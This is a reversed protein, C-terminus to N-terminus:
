PVAMPYVTSYSATPHLPTATTNHTTWGTVLLSVTVTSDELTCTNQKKNKTGTLWPQYLYRLCALPCKNGRPSYLIVKPSPKLGLNNVLSRLVQGKEGYVRVCMIMLESKDVDEVQYNPYPHERQRFCETLWAQDQAGQQEENQGERAIDSSRVHHFRHGSGVCVHSVFQFSLRRIIYNLRARWVDLSVNTYTSFNITVDFTLEYLKWTYYM